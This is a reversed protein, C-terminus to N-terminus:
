RHQHVMKPAAESFSYGRAPCRVAPNTPSFVGEPNNKWLWVHLDYHHFGVPMLPQHGEMPGELEKGFVKPRSSGAVEAPMFWEAAVLRLSDGVPEYILVQPKSPDLTPGVFGFNLFHVGMGGPAYRMSGESAGKPYEICAVSSLYGDHVAAIPDRYKDLQARVDALEAPVSPAQATGSSPATVVLLAALSALRVSWM